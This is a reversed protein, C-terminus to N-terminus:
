DACFLYLGKGGLSIDDVQVCLIRLVLILIFMVLNLLHSLSFVNWLCPVLLFQIIHGQLLPSPAFDFTVTLIQHPWWSCLTSCLM